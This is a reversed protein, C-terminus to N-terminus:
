IQKWPGTFVIGNKIAWLDIQERLYQTNVPAFPFQECDNHYFAGWGDGGYPDPCYTFIGKRSHWNDFTEEVVETRTAGFRSTKKTFRMKIALGGSYRTTRYLQNRTKVWFIEYKISSHGAFFRRISNFM